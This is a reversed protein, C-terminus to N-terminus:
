NIGSRLIDHLHIIGIPKEDEEIILVTIKYNEMLSLAKALIDSKSITKPNKTCVEYVSTTNIDIKNELIRRIDGDTLIGVLFGAEDVVATAGFGKQTIEIIAEYIKADKKVVPLEDGFHGVDKVQKLKKGLFGAPHLLAFDEEKFGSLKLLSMALADGLVLMATTSSTPALNLPCAEKDINLALTIDSQKALTSNKKNTISILFSGVMKIYPIMSIIEISEGSNSLALVIDDKTIIGLDGHLAENPHLFVAPTGVSAMTSAIKRAIHGSKGVGTLIVKGSSSHIIEVAKEFDENILLKLGEIAEIEKSITELATDKVLSM